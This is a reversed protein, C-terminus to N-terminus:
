GSVEALIEAGIPGQLSHVLKFLKGPAAREALLPTKKLFTFGEHRILYDGLAYSAGRRAVITMILKEIRQRDHTVGDPANLTKKRIAEMEQDDFIIISRLMARLDGDPMAALRTGFDLLETTAGHSYGHRLVWSTLGIEGRRVTRNKKQTLRLNRWFHMFSEDRLIRQSFGLAFSAYHFNRRSKDISWEIKEFDWPAPRPIAGAWIAASFDVDLAEAEALWDSAGPLPFWTSDNLLVLRKLTKIKPALALMADRYGGFDYGFNVREIISASLPILGQRDAASLTHNAVVVPAYGADRMYELARIHTQLVGKQPFILYVAVKDVIPIAGEWQKKQRALVHDYYPTGMFYQVAASPGSIIQAFLRAMERKLKWLSLSLNKM